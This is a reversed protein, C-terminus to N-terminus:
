QNKNSSRPTMLTQGVEIAADLYAAYFEPTQYGVIMPVLMKGQSDLLAVTPFVDVNYTDAFQETSTQQGSFDHLPLGSGVEVKGIVVQTSVANAMKMPALVEEELRECYECSLTSFMILVPVGEAQAQEGLQSLDTSLALAHQEYEDDALLPLAMGALLLIALLLGPLKQVHNRTTLLNM